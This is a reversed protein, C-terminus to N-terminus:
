ITHTNNWIPFGLRNILAAGAVMLQDPLFASLSNQMFRIYGTKLANKVLIIVNPGHQFLIGKLTILSFQLPIKKFHLGWRFPLSFSCMTNNWFIKIVQLKKLFKSSLVMIKVMELNIDVRHSEDVYIQHAQYKFSKILKLSYLPHQHLYEYDLHWLLYWKIGNYVSHWQLYQLHQILYIVSFVMIVPTKSSTLIKIKQPVEMTYINQSVKGIYITLYM